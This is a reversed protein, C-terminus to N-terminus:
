PLSVGPTWLADLARFAAVGGADLRPSPRAPFRGAGRATLEEFGLVNPVETVDIADFSTGYTDNMAAMFVNAVEAYGRESPHVGDLSFASAPNQMMTGTDYPFLRNLVLFDPDVPSTPLALLGANVDALAWGREDALATIVANYAAVEGAVLAVEDTTLTLESALSDPGGPAYSPGLVSAAPLLVYEVNEEITQWRVGKSVFPSVTTVFPLVDLATMNGVVVMEPDLADIRDAIATLNASFLASPIVNVGAVPNGSTVGGLLNNSGIWLFVVDPSLAVLQDLQTTDGPPLASNRLILDFFSNGGSVSSAADIAALVDMSTSGPVGLNNYPIPHQANLLLTEPPVTLSDATIAGTDGDVYLMGTPTGSPTTSSGLGPMDILPQAVPGWGARAAITTPFSSAQGGAVLVGNLFGATLSNGLAGLVVTGEPVHESRTVVVVGPTDPSCALIGLSISGALLVGTAVRRTSRM